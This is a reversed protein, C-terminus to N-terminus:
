RTLRQTRDLREYLDTHQTQFKLAELEVACDMLVHPTTAASASSVLLMLYLM